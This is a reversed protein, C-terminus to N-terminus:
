KADAWSVHNALSWFLGQLANPFCVSPLDDTVQFSKSRQGFERQEGHFTCTTERTSGCESTDGMDERVQPVPSGEMIVGREGQGVGEWGTSMPGLHKSHEPQSKGDQGGSQLNYFSRGERNCHSQCDSSGRWERGRAAGGKKKAALKTQDLLTEGVPLSAPSALPPQKGPKEDGDDGSGGRRKKRAMPM